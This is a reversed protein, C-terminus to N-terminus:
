GLFRVLKEIEENLLLFVKAVLYGDAVAHNLRVTVPMLLKGNEEKYRGWNIIPQYYLYGDPLEVNLAEYSIWSIYSADFYNVHNSEDLNYGGNKKAAEIDGACRDYFARYDEDFETYVPTCTEKIEDFVYHTINIKDYIRIEGTRWDFTMRYDERSNLAKGLCYLFDVYFKTGSKKAAEVLGSVDIKNTISVSCKCDETFHRYVGKRYYNDLNLIKYDNMIGGFQM